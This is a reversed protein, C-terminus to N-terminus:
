PAGPVGWLTHGDCAPSEVAASAGPYLHLTFLPGSAALPWPAWHSVRRSPFVCGRFPGQTCPQAAGELPRLAPHPPQGLCHPCTRLHCHTWPLPSLHAQEWLSRNM